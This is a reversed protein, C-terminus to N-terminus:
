SLVLRKEQPYYRAILETGIVKLEPYAERLVKLRHVRKSEKTEDGDKRVVTKVATKKYEVTIEEDVIMERGIMDPIYILGNSELVKGIEVKDQVMVISM